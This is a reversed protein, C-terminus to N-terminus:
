LKKKYINIYFTENKYKFFAPYKKNDCIRMLNFNELISKKPNLESDKKTRKLYFTEKGNQKKKKIKPYKKLFNSILKISANAQQERIEDNLYTKKITFKTEGYIDGSDVKQAAEILKVPIKSKNNLIQWQVPAFGKGKPLDSEHIVLNLKNLKLINQNIIKTYNIIFLVDFNKISKEDYTFIFKFKKNKIFQNKTFYKKIWDNKKDLLFAIKYM